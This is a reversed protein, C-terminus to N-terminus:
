VRAVIRLDGPLTWTKTPKGQAFARVERSFIKRILIVPGDSPALRDAERESMLPQAEQVVADQITVIDPRWIDVQDLQM